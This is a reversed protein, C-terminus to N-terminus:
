SDNGDNSYLSAFFSLNKNAVIQSMGQMLLLEEIDYSSDSM